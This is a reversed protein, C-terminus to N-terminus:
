RAPAPQRPVRERRRQLAEGIWSALTERAPLPRGGPWVLEDDVMLGPPEGTLHNAIFQENDVLIVGVDKRGMETLLQEIELELKLCNACGTGLIKIFARM